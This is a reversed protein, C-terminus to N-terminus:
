LLEAVTKDGSRCMLFFDSSNYFNHSKKIIGKNKIIQKLTLNKQRM